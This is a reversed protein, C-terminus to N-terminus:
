YHRPQNSTHHRCQHHHVSVYQSSCTFSWYHNHLFFRPFFICFLVFDYRKQEIFLFFFQSSLKKKLNNSVNKDTIICNTKMPAIASYSPTFSLPDTPTVNKIAIECTLSDFDYFKSQFASVRCDGNKWFITWNVSCWNELYFVEFSRCWKLVVTRLCEKRSFREAYPFLMLGLKPRKSLMWISDCFDGM